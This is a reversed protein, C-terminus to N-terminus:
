WIEMSEQHLSRPIITKSGLTYGVFCRMSAVLENPGYYSYYFHPISKDPHIIAKLIEPCNPNRITIKNKDIISQSVSRDTSFPPIPLVLGDETEWIAGNLPFGLCKAVAWDLAPGILDETLVCIINGSLQKKLTSTIEQLLQITDM